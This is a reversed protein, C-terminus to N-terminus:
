LRHVPLGRALSFLEGNKVREKTDPLLSYSYRAEATEASFIFTGIRKDDVLINVFYISPKPILIGSDGVVPTVLFSSKSTVNATDVLNTERSIANVLEIRIKHEGKPMRFGSVIQTKYPLPYKNWYVSLFQNELKLHSNDYQYKQCLAFYVLESKGTKEMEEDNTSGAAKLMETNVKSSFNILDDTENPVLDIKYFLLPKRGLTFSDIKCELVREGPSEINFELPIALDIIKPLYEIEIEEEHLLEKRSDSALWFSLKHKGPSGWFGVCSLINIKIPFERKGFLTTISNFEMLGPQYTARMCTIFHLLHWKEAMYGKPPKFDNFRHSIPITKILESPELLETEQNQVYDFQKWHGGQMEIGKSSPPSDPDVDVFGYRFPKIGSPELTVIQLMGGVTDDWVYKGLLSSTKIFLKDTMEFEKKEKELYKKIVSGSGVVELGEKIEIPTFDPSSFRYLYVDDKEPLTVGMIFTVGDRVAKYEEIAIKQFDRLLLPPKNRAMKKASEFIKAALSVNGTYGLAANRGLPLIKQLKDAVVLSTARSDSLM